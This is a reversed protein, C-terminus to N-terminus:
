RRIQLTLKVEGQRVEPSSISISTKKVNDGSSYLEKWGGKFFSGLLAGILCSSVVIGTKYKKKMRSDKKTIKMKKVYGINRMNDNVIGFNSYTTDTSTSGKQLYVVAGGVAVGLMAGFLSYNRTAVKISEIDSLRVSKYVGFSKYLLEENRKVIYRKESLLKGSKLKVKPDILIKGDYFIDSSPSPAFGSVLHQWYNESQKTQLAETEKLNLVLLDNEKINIFSLPFSSLTCSTDSIESVIAMGIYKPEDGLLRKIDFVTNKLIGNRIGKDAFIKKDNVKIVKMESEKSGAYVIVPMVILQLYCIIIIINIIKKM